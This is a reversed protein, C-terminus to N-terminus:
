AVLLAEEGLGAAKAQFSPRDEGATEVGRGLRPDGLFGARENAAAFLLM